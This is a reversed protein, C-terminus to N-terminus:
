KRIGDPGKKSVDHCLLPSSADAKSFVSDPAFPKAPESKEM